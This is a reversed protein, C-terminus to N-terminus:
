SDLERWVQQPQLNLLSCLRRFEEKERERIKGDAIIVLYAVRMLTRARKHNGAMRRVKDHLTKVASRGYTRLAYIYEYLAATAKEPDLEMLAPVSALARDVQRYESQVVEDDAAATLACVAMAAKLFDRNHFHRVEDALKSMISRDM